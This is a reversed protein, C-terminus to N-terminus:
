GNGRRKMADLLHAQTADKQALTDFVVDDVTGRALVHHIVVPRTQGQRHLRANFQQYLELSWPLGFWVAIRGGDQLNLGHGASAPHALLMEVEGRNWAAITAPDDDLVRARPFAARIRDVDSRFAYAVLVPEGASEEVVSRLADLKADHVQVVVRDAGGDLRPTNAYIAGNTFQLLKGALVAANAATVDAGALELVFERELERYQEAVDEPLDVGVVNDIRPPLTQYDAASLTLCVDACAQYIAERAGDKPTWTFGMYDSAFYRDRFRSFARELREGRDVLFLQAWLDLLGNAAPTGTLEVLRDIRHRVRRLAKFRKAQPSKFSSSEDIVVMDFPWRDGVLDVLWPVNERNITVVEAGSAIAARRQAASGCAVAVRLGTLHSWKRAEDPWTTRAVRLPAIVLVRAVDLQNLLDVIATLTSATKGMGMELWLACSSRTRIWEVARAQYTHLDARTL